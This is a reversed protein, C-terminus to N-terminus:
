YYLFLLTVKATPDVTATPDIIVAGVIDPGDECPQALLKSGIHKMEQLYM